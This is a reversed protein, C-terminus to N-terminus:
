EGVKRIRGEKGVRREESRFTEQLTSASTSSNTDTPSPHTRTSTCPMTLSHSAAMQPYQLGFQTFVATSVRRRLRAQSEALRSTLDSSCVDSSWDRSFTTHR